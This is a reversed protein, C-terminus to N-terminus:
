KKKNDPFFKKWNINNKGWTSKPKKNKVDEVSEYTNSHGAGDRPIQEYTDDATRTPGEPVEAYMSDAQQAPSGAAAESSQYLPNPRLQDQSGNEPESGSSSQTVGPTHYSYTLCTVKKPPASATVSLSNFKNSYKEEEEKEEDDNNNGLYPLSQSRSEVQSLDAVPVMEKYFESSNNSDTPHFSDRNAPLPPTTRGRHRQARNPNTPMESPHSMTDPLSGSLSFGLPMGRKPVPPLAQSLSSADVSVTRTLKRNRSKPPLSPALAPPSENQCQQVKKKKDPEVQDWISRLAQVSVGSSKKANVVDYLDDADDQCCSSTLFEGFPQIPRVKYHEILQTLSGFLQCDGAIVFQGEANQSIVFHRCRDQGKYSLIYGIAKDSLRILFCGLAKDRLVDEAEKRAALGQFWDPFNGNQLILPAQTDTFWRLVLEKLGGDAALTQLDAMTQKAM